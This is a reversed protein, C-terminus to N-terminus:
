RIAQQILNRGDCEKYRYGFRDLITPFIDYLKAGRIQKGKPIGQGKMMFIGDLRHIGSHKICGDHYAMPTNFIHSSMSEYGDRTVYSYDRMKILLDPAYKVYEGKYIEEKLYVTDVVARNDEPDKLDRLKKIIENRLRKEELGGKVIGEPERRYKKLYICGFFGCSYVRTKSWDINELFNICESNDKKKFALFGEQELWANLYVDKYLPGFGHDSVIILTKDEGMCYKGIFDDIKKYCNEIASRCEQADTSKSEVQNEDIYKWFAHQLRDTEVFVFFIFNLDAMEKIIYEFMKLRSELMRNIVGLYDSEDDCRGDVDIIYDKLTGGLMADTDEPYTFGSQKQPADMGSIMLGNVEDAPYTVPVNVVAVKFGLKSLLTWLTLGNRERANVFVMEYSNPAKKRFDFVGHKGPNLGTFISTWASPTIPHVNSWLNGWMGETKLRAFVPLQGANIMPDIIKFTAGDIGILIVKKKHM